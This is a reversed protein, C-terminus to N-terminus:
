QSLSPTGLHNHYPLTGRRLASRDAPNSASGVLNSRESLLSAVPVLVLVGSHNNRRATHMHSVRGGFKSPEANFPSVGLNRPAPFVPSLFVVARVECLLKSMAEYQTANPKMVM